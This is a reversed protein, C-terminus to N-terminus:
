TIRGSIPRPSNVLPSSTSYPRANTNVVRNPGLKMPTERSMLLQAWHNCVSGKSTVNVGSGSSRAESSSNLKIWYVSSLFSEFRILGTLGTSRTLGYGMAWLGYGM